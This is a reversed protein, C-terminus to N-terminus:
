GNYRSIVGAKFQENFYAALPILKPAHDELLERPVAILDHTMLFNSITCGESSNRLIYPSMHTRLRLRKTTLTRTAVNYWCWVFRVWPWGNVRGASINLGLKLHAGEQTYHIMYTVNHTNIISKHYV